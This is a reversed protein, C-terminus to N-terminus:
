TKKCFLKKANKKLIKDRKKGFQGIVEELAIAIRGGETLVAEFEKLAKVMSPRAEFTVTELVPASVKHHEAEGEVEGKMYPIYKMDAGLIHSSLWRSLFDVVKQGDISESDKKNIKALEKVLKQFKKHEKKHAEIEPFHAKEIFQEEREFHENCYTTLSNIANSIAEQEAGREFRDKLIAIEEFLTQHDTDIARVGTSFKESWELAPAPDRNRRESERRDSGRREDM